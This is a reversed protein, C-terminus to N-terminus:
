KRWNWTEFGVFGLNFVSLMTDKPYLDIGDFSLRGNLAIVFANKEVHNCFWDAGVSAPTLFSIIKDFGPKSAEDNCKQAWPSILAFEPNLWLHKGPCRSWDQKLADEKKSFYRKHRTNRAHAALDFSIKGFRREVAEIFPWPTAYDQKSRGPKQKPSKRNHTELYIVKSV